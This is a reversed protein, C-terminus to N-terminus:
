DGHLKGGPNELPLFHFWQDGYRRIIDEFDKLIGAQLSELKDLDEKGEKPPHHVGGHVFKYRNGDDFVLATTLIPVGARAALFLHGLPFPPKVGFFEFRKYTAGYARDVLLAVSEGRELAEKLITYSGRMPHNIIGIRRRRQDFFRTVQETPHDLAVTNVRFGLRSLCLGGLEWPGMHLSTIIFSPREGLSELAAELETLDVRDRLDDWRFYPLTLFIQIARAFNIIVRRSMRRLERKTLTGGHVIQLNNEVVRRTKVRVLCSVQGITWSIADAVKTPLIRGFFSGTQYILYAWM